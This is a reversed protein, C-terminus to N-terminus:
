LEDAVCEARREEDAYQASPDSANAGLVAAGPVVCALGRLASQQWAPPLNEPSIGLMPAVLIASAVHEPVKRCVNLCIAGGMSVGLLVLKRKPEKARVWRAMAVGMETLDSSSRILGRPGPSEGHGRLDLSFVVNNEALLESAYRLTPYCAHSGYGHFCVVAAERESSKTPRWEHIVLQEGQYELHDRTHTFARPPPAPILAAM